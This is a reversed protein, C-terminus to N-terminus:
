EGADIMMKWTEDNMNWRIENIMWWEYRIAIMTMWWQDDDNMMWWGEGFAGHMIMMWWRGDDGNIM